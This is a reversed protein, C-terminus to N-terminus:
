KGSRTKKRVRRKYKSNDLQIANPKTSMESRKKREFIRGDRERIKVVNRTKEYIEMIKEILGGGGGRREELSKGLVGREVSDLAVKLDVFAAVIKDGESVKERWM